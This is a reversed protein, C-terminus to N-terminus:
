RSPKPESVRTMTLEYGGGPWRWAGKITNHDDSFEGEFAANASEPLLRFKVSREGVEWVYDFQNGTSSEFWAGILQDSPAKQEWGKPYGIVMLGEIGRGLEEHHMALFHGGPLWDFVDHGKWQEGTSSDRHHLDWAGVLRDLMRLRENPPQAKNSALDDAPM